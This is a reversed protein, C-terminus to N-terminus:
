EEIRVKFYAAVAAIIGVIMYCAISFCIASEDITNM